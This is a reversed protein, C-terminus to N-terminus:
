RPLARAGGADGLDNRVARLSASKRRVAQADADDVRQLREAHGFLQLKAPFEHQVAAGARRHARWCMIPPSEEIVHAVHEHGVVVHLQQALGRWLDGRARVALTTVRHVAAGQFVHSRSAHPPARSFPVLRYRPYEWFSVRFPM